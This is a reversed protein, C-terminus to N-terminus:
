HVKKEEGAIKEEMESQIMDIASAYNYYQKSYESMDLEHMLIAFAALITADIICVGITDTIGIGFSQTIYLLFVGYGIPIFCAIIVEGAMVLGRQVWSVKKQKEVVHGVFRIEYIEHQQKELCLILLVALTTLTVCALFVAWGTKTHESMPTYEYYLSMLYTLASAIWLICQFAGNKKGNVEKKAKEWDWKLLLSLYEQLVLQYRNLNKMDFNDSELENIIKWIHADDSYRNSVRKGMANIRDKLQDCIKITDQYSAGRLKESCERIKERWVSREKTIYKLTNSKTTTVITILGSIIAAAVASGWFTDMGM